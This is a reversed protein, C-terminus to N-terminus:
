HIEHRDGAFDHGPPRAGPVAHADIMPQAFPRDDRGIVIRHEGLDDGMALIALLRPPAQQARELLRQEGPDDRVAVKQDRRQLLRLEDVASAVVANM